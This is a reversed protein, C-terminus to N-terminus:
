WRDENALAFIMLWALSLFLTVIQIWSDSDMCALSVLFVIFAVFTIIDLSLNHLNQKIRKKKMRKM